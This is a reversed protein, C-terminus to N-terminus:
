LEQFSLCTKKSSYEWALSMHPWSAIIAVKDTSKRVMGSKKLHSKIQKRTESSSEKVKSKAELLMDEYVQRVSDPHAPLNPCTRAM